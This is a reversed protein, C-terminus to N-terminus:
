PSSVYPELREFEDLSRFVETYGSTLDDPIASALEEELL